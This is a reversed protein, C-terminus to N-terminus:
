SAREGSVMQLRGGDSILRQYQQVLALAQRLSSSSALLDSVVDFSGPGVGAGAKLGFGADQTCHVAARWLRTIHDIPWREQQLEEPAIGAQALLRGRGVGQREAEALVADVWSMSVTAQLTM